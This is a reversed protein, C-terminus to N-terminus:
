GRGDGRRRHRGAQRKASGERGAGGVTGLISWRGGLLLLERRQAIRECSLLFLTRGALAIREKKKGGEGARGEERSSRNYFKKQSSSSSRVDTPLVDYRHHPSVSVV